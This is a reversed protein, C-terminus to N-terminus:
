LKLNSTQKQSDMVHSGLVLGAIALIAELAAHGMFGLTRGHAM